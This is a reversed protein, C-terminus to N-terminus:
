GLIKRGKVWGDALFSALDDSRIKKSGHLEHRIWCTGFQSNNEGTGTGKKTSSMKAKTEPSHTHEGKKRNAAAKARGLKANEGQRWRWWADYEPDAARREAFVQRTVENGRKASLRRKEDYESTGNIHDFGGSGGMKINYYETSEVVEQNVLVSEMNFMDTDNDFIALYEKTFSQLGHKDIARRILKGSGMYKDDLDITKHVGIYKKGNVINTIQYVTYFM